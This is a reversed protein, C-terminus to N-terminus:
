KRIAMVPDLLDAIHLWISQSKQRCTLLIGENQTHLTCRWHVTRFWDRHRVFCVVCCTFHVNFCSMCLTVLTMLLSLYICNSSLNICPRKGDNLSINFQCRWRRQYWHCAGAQSIDIIGTSSADREKMELVGIHLKFRLYVM